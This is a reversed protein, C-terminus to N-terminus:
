VSRRVYIYTLGLPQLICLYTYSCVTRKGVRQPPKHGALMSGGSGSADEAHVAKEELRAPELVVAGSALAPLVEPPQSLLPSASDDAVLPAVTTEQRPQPASAAATHPEPPRGMLRRRSISPCPPCLPSHCTHINTTARHSICVRDRM